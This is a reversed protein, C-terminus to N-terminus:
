KNNYVVRIYFSTTTLKNRPNNIIKNLYDKAQKVTDFDKIYGCENIVRVFEVDENSFDQKLFTQFLYSEVIQCNNDIIDLIELLDKVKVTIVDETTYEIFNNQYYAFSGNDYDWIIKNEKM